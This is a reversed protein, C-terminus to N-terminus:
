GNRQNKWASYILAVGIIIIISPWFGHRLTRWLVPFLGGILAVIGVIILVIGLISILKGKDGPESVDVYSVYDQQEGYPREPIVIAAIIYILVGTGSLAIVAWILRIITVDINFYEAIGGCVGALMKQERSRYLKKNM